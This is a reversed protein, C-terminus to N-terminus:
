SVRKKARRILSIFWLTLFINIPAGVMRPGLPEGRTMWLGVILLLPLVVVYFKLRRILAQTKIPDAPTRKQKAARKLILFVLIFLAGMLLLLTAGLLRPSM